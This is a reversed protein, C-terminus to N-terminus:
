ALQFVATASAASTEKVVGEYVSNGDSHAGDFRVWVPEVPLLHQPLAANWPGLTNFHLGLDQATDVVTHQLVSRSYRVRVSECVHPLGDGNFYRIAWNVTDQLISYFFHRSVLGGKSRPALKVKPTLQPTFGASDGPKRIHNWIVNDMTSLEPLTLPHAMLSYPLVPILQM